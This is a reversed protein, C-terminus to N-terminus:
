LSHIILFRGEKKKKKTVSLIQSVGHRSAGIESVCIAESNNIQM